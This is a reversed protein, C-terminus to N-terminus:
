QPQPKGLQKHPKTYKDEHFFPLFVRFLQGPSIQKKRRLAADHQGKIQLRSFQSTKLKSSDSGKIKLINELLKRQLKVLPQLLIIMPGFHEKKGSISTHGNAM